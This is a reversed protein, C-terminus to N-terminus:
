ILGEDRLWLFARGCADAENAGVTSDGMELNGYRVRCRGESEYILMFSYTSGDIVMQDPLLSRIEAYKYASFAAEAGRQQTDARHWGSNEDVKNWWETSSQTAGAIKLFESVIPTTVPPMTLHNLTLTASAGVLSYAGPNVECTSKIAFIISRTGSFVQQWQFQGTWILGSNEHLDSVFRTACGGGGTRLSEFRATMNGGPNSVCGQLGISLAGEVNFVISVIMSFPRVDPIFGLFQPDGGNTPPHVLYGTPVPPTPGESSENQVDLNTHPVSDANFYASYGGSCAGIAGGITIVKGATNSGAKRWFLSAKRDTSEAILNWTTTYGSEFFISPESDTCTIRPNGSTHDRSTVAVYIDDGKEILNSLTIQLSTPDPEPFTGPASARHTVPYGM